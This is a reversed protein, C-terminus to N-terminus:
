MFLLKINAQSLVGLCTCSNADLKPMFGQFIHMCLIYYLSVQAAFHMVTDIAEARLVYNVLDSSKIDGKVFQMVYCLRIKMVSSYCCHFRTSILVSQKLSIM